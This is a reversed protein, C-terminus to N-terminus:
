MHELKQFEFITQLVFILSIRIISIIILIISSVILCIFARSPYVVEAKENETDTTKSEKTTEEAQTSGCPHTPSDQGQRIPSYCIKKVDLELLTPTLCHKMQSKKMKALTRKELAEMQKM